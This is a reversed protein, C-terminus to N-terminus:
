ARPVDHGSLPQSQAPCEGPQALGPFGRPVTRGWSGELEAGQLVGTIWCSVHQRMGEAAIRLTPRRVAM